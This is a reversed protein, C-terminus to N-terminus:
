AGVQTVSKQRLPMLYQAEIVQEGTGLMVDVVQEVIRTELENPM